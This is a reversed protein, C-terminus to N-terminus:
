LVEEWKYAQGFYSTGGYPVNMVRPVVALKRSQAVRAQAKRIAQFM